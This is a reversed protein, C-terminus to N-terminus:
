IKAHADVLERYYMLMVLAATKTMRHNMADIAYLESTKGHTSETWRMIQGTLKSSEVADCKLAEVEKMWDEVPAVSANLREIRALYYNRLIHRAGNPVQSLREDMVLYLGICRSRSM